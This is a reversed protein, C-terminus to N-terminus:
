DGMIDPTAVINTRQSAAGITKSYLCDIASANRRINASFLVFAQWMDTFLCNGVNM